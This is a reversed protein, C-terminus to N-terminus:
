IIINPKPIEIVPLEYKPAKLTFAQLEGSWLFEPQTNGAVEDFAQLQELTLSQVGGIKHLMTIVFANIWEPKFEPMFDKRRKQSKKREAPSVM